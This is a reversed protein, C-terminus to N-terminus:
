QKFNIEVNRALSVVNILKQIEQINNPYKNAKPNLSYMKTLTEIQDVTIYQPYGPGNM